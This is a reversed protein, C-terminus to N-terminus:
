SVYALMKLLNILGVVAVRMAGEGAARKRGHTVGGCAVLRDSYSIRVM